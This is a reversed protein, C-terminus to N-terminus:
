VWWRDGPADAYLGGRRSDSLGGRTSNSGILDGADGGLFATEGISKMLDGCYWGAGLGGTISISM